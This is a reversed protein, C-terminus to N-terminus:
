RSLSGGVAFGCGIFWDPAAATIGAGAEIDFQMRRGAPRSVGGNVIVARGGDRDFRSFGYVEGYAGWGAALDHGVSVSIADQNFRGGPDSVASVNVNGSLDFGAPLGRAWAIKITPDYTGSSFRESGVPLSLIPIVALDVGIQDQDFLRIKAAVEVDSVGAARDLRGIDALLFGDAGIRFETRYGLGVRLLATPATFARSRDDSELTMGTELQLWGRRIVISSETFDPRDTVIGPPDASQAAALAPVAVFAAFFTLLCSRPLM